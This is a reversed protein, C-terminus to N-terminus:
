KKLIWADKFESVRILEKKYKDAEAHSNFKEVAIRIKNDTKIMEAHNYGKKKLNEVFDRSNALDNSSFVIVYYQEPANARANEYFERQKRELEAQRDSNEDNRHQQDFRSENMISEPIADHVEAPKQAIVKRSPYLSRDIKVIEANDTTPGFWLCVYGNYEAIGMVEWKPSSYPQLNLIVNNFQPYLKWSDVIDSPNVIGKNYYAIEISQGKYKTLEAPKKKTKRVANKDKSYNIAKWNGKNSWSNLSGTKDQPKNNFLDKVHTDAVYCLAQSIQLEPLGNEARYDNILNLIETEVDSIAVSSYNQSQAFYCFLAAIVAFLIKKM